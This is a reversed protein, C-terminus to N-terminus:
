RELRLHTPQGREGWDSVRTLEQPNTRKGGEQMKFDIPNYGEDKLNSKKLRKSVSGYDITSKVALM